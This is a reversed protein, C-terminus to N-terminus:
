TPAKMRRYKESCKIVQLNTPFELCVRADAPVSSGTRTRAPAKANAPVPAPAASVAAAAPPTPAQAGLYPSLVTSAAVVIAAASVGKM